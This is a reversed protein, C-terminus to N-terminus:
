RQKLNGGTGGHGAGSRFEAPTVKMMRRSMVICASASGYGLDFAISEVTHGAKLVSMANVVRLRLRRETFSRGLDRQCRRMLTRETTGAARALAALTRTDSPQAPLARLVPGLLPDDSSPLYSGVCTSEGLQHLLVRLLREEQESHLQGPPHDRMHELLSRVLASVTIACPNQPLRSCLDAAIYVSCLSTEHRNVGTHQVPTSYM